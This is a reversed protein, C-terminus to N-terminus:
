GEFDAAIQLIRNWQATKPGLKNKRRAALEIILKLACEASIARVAAHRAKADELVQAYCEENNM